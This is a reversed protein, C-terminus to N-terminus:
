GWNQNEVFLPLINKICNSRKNSLTIGMYFAARSLGVYIYKDILSSQRSEILKDLDNFFVVEFEMGKVLNIPFLRVTDKRTLTDGSSCDKVDIGCEELQGNDEIRKKFAPISEADSLFIAISPICNYVRQVELIRQVIWDAKKQEDKSIYVLPPPTNELENLHCIYPPVKNMRKKYLEIAVEMLQPSQRYSINLGQINLKPFVTNLEEWHNIGRTNLSQMLDGSLTVCSIIYHRLSYIAYYDMITYDTAEDVGIIPRCVEKYADIYKHKMETFLSPVIQYFKLTLNNIFGILLSLEDPHISKNKDKIIQQLVEANWHISTSQSEKRRYNKYIKCIPNLMNSEVGKLIPYFYRMFFSSQGISALKAEDIFPQVLKQLESDSASLKGKKDYKKRALKSLLSRLKKHLIIELNKNSDGEDEIANEDDDIEDNLEKSVQLNKVWILLQKYLEEDKKLKIHTTDLADKLKSNYFKTILEINNNENISKMQWLESLNHFLKVISEIDEIEAKRCDNQIITGIKKWTFSSIDINSLEQLNAKISDIYYRTFSEIILHQESIFLPQARLKTGAFKFPAEDGALKYNDRSISKRFDDWVKTKESIGPLGEYDMNDRLYLRLLETPSFFIWDSKKNFLITKQAETLNFCPTCEEYDQLSDKEILLKLRQILTTTKGTGPGGNIILISDDFLSSFKIDTQNRDLIPQIRLSAQKRIFSIANKHKKNLIELNNSFEKKEEELRLQEEKRLREQEIYEAEEKKRQLNLQCIKKEDKIKKLSIEYERRKKLEEENADNREKELLKLDKEKKKISNKTESVATRLQDINQFNYYGGQSETGIRINSINGDQHIYTCTNHLNFSTTEGNKMVADHEGKYNYCLIRGLNSNKSVCPGDSTYTDTIGSYETGTYNGLINKRINYSGEYDRNVIWIVLNNEKISVAARGISPNLVDREHATHNEIENAINELM